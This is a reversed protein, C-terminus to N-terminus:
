FLTLDKSLEDIAQMVSHETENDLSSTAEDFILVSAQKYLARAIGIRQRQGGSLRVGREGVITSYSEPSSEIFEAIHAQIAAKRVRELDINAPTTGFAINEAITTDALFISQPVHAVTRQWSRQRDLGISLGDVLIQGRTPQLLCMLLDLATSKGSGTNGVIGIRSGKSITLDLDKLVWPAHSGYQFSVNDFSIKEKLLLPEPDPLLFQQMLPQDLLDLVDILAAKSGTISTLNSYLQQMLPLSRQAGLALAGLIPLGDIINGSRYNMMMVLIAILVMGMTEMFYRPSTNIFTNEIDARQYHINSKHYEDCYVAQTGDILIDRIGGLAEQIVKILHSQLKAGIHGNNEVRYRTLLTIILYTSGFLVASVAAIMPDIIFLTTIISILLIGSTTISVVASIVGTAASTKQTMGSIIESSSRSVHVSYPQYLTRRFVGISLDAGAFKILGVSFWVLFIRLVGAILTVVVFTITLPIVLDTGKEIGLEHLIDSIFPLDFIKEPQTIVSIFPLVAGLSIIETVSSLMTLGLLMIFQWRRRLSIHAWLRHLLLHLPQPVFM